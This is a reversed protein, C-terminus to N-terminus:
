PSDQRPAALVVVRELGSSSPDVGRGRRPALEEQACAYTVPDVEVGGLSRPVYLRFSGTDRLARLSSAPSRGDRDAQAADERLTPGIRRAEAVPDILTAIANM